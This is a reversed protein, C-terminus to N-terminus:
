GVVHEAMARLGADAEDSSGTSFFSYTTDGDLVYIGGTTSYSEDGLGLDEEVISESDESFTRTQEFLEAASLNFADQMSADTGIALSVVKATMGDAVGWTCQRTGAELPTGTGEDFTVDFFTELDAITVLECPDPVDGDDGEDAEDESDSEDGSEADDSAETSADGSDDDDGCAATLLTLSCAVALLKLLRALSAPM